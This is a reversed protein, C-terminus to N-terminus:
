PSKEVLYRGGSFVVPHWGHQCIAFKINDEMVISSFYCVITLSDLDHIIVRWAKQDAMKIVEKLGAIKNKLNTLDAKKCKTKAELLDLTKTASSYGAGDYEQRPRKDVTIQNPLSHLVVNDNELFRKVSMWPEDEHGKVINKRWGNLDQMSKRLSSDWLIYVGGQIFDELRLVIRKKDNVNILPGGFLQMLDFLHSESTATCETANIDENEDDDKQCLVTFRVPEPPTVVLPNVDCVKFDEILDAVRESHDKIEHGSAFLRLQDVDYPGLLVPRRSKVIELLDYVFEAKDRVLMKQQGAKIWLNQKTDSLRRIVLMRWLMACDAASRKM